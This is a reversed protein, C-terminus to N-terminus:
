FSHPLSFLVLLIHLTTLVLVWPVKLLFFTHIWIQTHLILWDSKNKESAPSLCAHTQTVSNLVVCGTWKWPKQYCCSHGLCCQLRSRPQWTTTPSCKCQNSHPVPVEAGFNGYQQGQKCGSFLLEINIVIVITLPLSQQQQHQTQQITRKVKHIIIKCARWSWLLIAGQPIISTKQISNFQISCWHFM